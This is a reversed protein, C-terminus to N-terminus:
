DNVPVFHARRNSQYCEETNETCFPREEGYSITRLRESAVGRAVLYRKTSRTRREGLALNYENTGREDTHGEIVVEMLPHEKLLQVNRDLILKSDPRIIEKDFDFFIDELKMVLSGSDLMGEPISDREQPISPEQVFSLEEAAKGEIEPSEKGPESIVNDTTSVKKACGWGTLLVLTCIIVAFLNLGVKKFM